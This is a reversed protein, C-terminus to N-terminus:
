RRTLSSVRGRGKGRWLGHEVRMRASIATEGFRARATAVCCVCAVVEGGGCEFQAAADSLLWEDDVRADDTAARFDVWRPANFRWAPDSPPAPTAPPM